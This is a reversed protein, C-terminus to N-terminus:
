RGIFKVRFLGDLELGMYRFEPKLVFTTIGSQTIQLIDQLKEGSENVLALYIVGSDMDYLKFFLEDEKNKKFVKLKM